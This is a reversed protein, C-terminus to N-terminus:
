IIEKIKKILESVLTNSKILYDRVGLRKALKKYEPNSYNTLIFVPIKKGEKLERIDKLAELGTMGPLLIDLVILDPKYKKFEKLIDSGDNVIQHNTLGAQNFERTLIRVMFQDDEIILIKPTPKKVM